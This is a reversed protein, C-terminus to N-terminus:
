HYTKIDEQGRWDRVQEQASFLFINILQFSAAPLFIFGVSVSRIDVDGKEKDRRLKENTTRLKALAEEDRSSRLEEHSM